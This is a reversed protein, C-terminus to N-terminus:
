VKENTNFGPGPLFHRASNAKFPPGVQVTVIRQVGRAVTADIYYIPIKRKFALSLRLLRSGHEAVLLLGGAGTAEHTTRTRRRAQPPQVRLEKLKAQTCEGV